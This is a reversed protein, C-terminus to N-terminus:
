TIRDFLDGQRSLDDMAPVDPLGRVRWVQLGARPGGIKIAANVMHISRMELRHTFRDNELGKRLFRKALVEYCERQFIEIRSRIIENKIRLSSLRFLWGPIKELDLGVTEQIGGGSPIAMVAIAEKLHPDRRVRRYQASWELGMAEVIPKLAIYVVKGVRSGYLEAGHFDAKM